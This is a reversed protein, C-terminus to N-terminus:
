RSTYTRTFSETINVPTHEPSYSPLISQHVNQHIVWHHQSIDTGTFSESINAPTHQPSPSASIPQHIDEKTVTCTHVHVPTTGNDSIYAPRLGVPGLQSSVQTRWWPADQLRRWLAVWLLPPARCVCMDCSRQWKRCSKAKNQPEKKAGLVVSLKRASMFFQQFSNYM